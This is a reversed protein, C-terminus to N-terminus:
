GDHGGGRSRGVLWSVLACVGYWFLGSAFHWWQANPNLIGNFVLVLLAFNGLALLSKAYEERWNM